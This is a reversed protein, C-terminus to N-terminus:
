ELNKQIKIWESYLKIGKELSFGPKYRLETKARNINLGEVRDMLKGKGMSIDVPFHTYKKCLAIVEDVQYSKGSSFNYIQSATKKKEFLLCIGQAADLVYTFDIMQEGGRDSALGNIGELIGFIAKYLTFFTSPMKGPGYIFYLRGIRFDLGYSDAYKSGIFEASVKSAAYLDQPEVCDEEKAKGKKRSYVAGTSTFVIKKIGFIRSLELINLLGIVNLKINEYPNNSVFEGMISVTHIIGEIEQHYEKIVKTLKAFDLMDGEIYHINKNYEALNDPIKKTIDYIIVKKNNKAFLHAIWSGLHGCGGTIFISM